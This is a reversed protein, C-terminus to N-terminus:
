VSVDSNIEISNAKRIGKRNDLKVYMDTGKKIRRQTQGMQKFNLGCPEKKAVKLEKKVEAHDKSAGTSSSIRTSPTRAQNTTTSPHQKKKKRIKKNTTSNISSTSSRKKKTIAEDLLKQQTRKM